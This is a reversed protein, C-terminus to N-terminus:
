RRDSDRRRRAQAQGGACRDVQDACACAALAPFLCLGPRASQHRGHLPGKRHHFPPRGQAKGLRRHRDIDHRQGGSRKDRHGRRNEIDGSRRTTRSDPAPSAETAGNRATRQGRDAIRTMAMLRAESPRKSILRMAACRRPAPRSRSSSTTTARAAASIARSSRASRISRSTTARATAGHRHRGHDHGAHLLRMALRSARPLGGADPASAEGNALGEITTIQAGECQLALLTCSKVGKGDMHVTCAGCQSTDCGVHTGTLRQHERLFEVLLTRPDVNAKVAKGNITMSVSAM